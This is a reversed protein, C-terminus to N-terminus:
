ENFTGIIKAAEGKTLEEIVTVPKGLIESLYDMTKGAEGLIKKQILMKQQEEVPDDMTRDIISDADAVEELSCVDLGLANRLTRAAARTEAMATPYQKFEGQANNDRCDATGSYSVDADPFFFSTKVTASWNNVKEPCQLVEAKYTGIRGFAKKAARLLSSYKVFMQKGDKTLLFDEQVFLKGVEVETGTALIIKTESLTKFDQKNVKKGM